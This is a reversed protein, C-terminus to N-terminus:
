PLNKILLEATEEASQQSKIKLDAANEYFPQRIRFLEEINKSLPRDTSILEDVPRDLYVLVGNQRLYDVNEQRLVAGGGISIVAGTMKAAKKVQEAELSRFHAEGKETIISSPSAGYENEIMIDTDVFQRKMKGSIIKGVTSKGCSPMGILVINKMESLIERETREAKEDPVPEGTFHEASKKAQFVLMTLGGSVRANKREADILFRSKVPNYNIDIVAELNNFGDLALPTEDNHPFKGVPTTNVIVSADYHRSINEYNDKGSRSIIIVEAGEDALATKVALSAGGSGLVLAKKGKVKVKTNQLTRLFGYYDTNYGSLRGNRNVITNVSGIRKALPSIEDLFPMVAKKYPITVNLGDFDRTGLMENMQEESVSFLEYSYDFFSKHIRPSLSIAINQGILGFKEAM